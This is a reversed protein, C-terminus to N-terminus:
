VNKKKGEKLQKDLRKLVYRGDHGTLNTFYKSKFFKEADKHVASDAPSKLYDDSAAKVMAEVLYFCGQMDLEKM